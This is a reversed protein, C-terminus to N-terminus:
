VHEQQMMLCIQKANMEDQMQKNILEIQQALVSSFSVSGQQLNRIKDISLGVQRLLKIKLLLEVDADSYSRYGNEQRVPVALGENEYFRITARDLGTKKEVDLIRM